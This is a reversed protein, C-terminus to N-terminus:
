ERTTVKHAVSYSGPELGRLNALRWSLLQLPVIAAASAMGPGVDGIGVTTAGDPGRGDRTVALVAAGSEVLEGALGLDMAETAPEVAIVVAGLSPSALELPGHRFQATQLSEAPFRAAEKLTLAGMEAAPRGHGRAMIALAGRDDLWEGLRTAQEEADAVLRAVSEAARAYADPDGAPAGLAVALERLLVLTADFTMTSPGHEEGAATDLAIDACGALTNALGNTVSVVLPPRERERLAQVVRVPEASEGSQSVCIVLTRETITPMRFHLLEASDVMSTAIGAQALTTVPAYCAFNSSGMGTFLIGDAGALRATVSALSDRQDSAARAARLIADPQGAIEALFRDPFKGLSQM